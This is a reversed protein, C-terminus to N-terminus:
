QSVTSVHDQIIEFSAPCLSGIRFKKDRWMTNIWHDVPMSIGEQLSSDVLEKSMTRMVESPDKNTVPFLLAGAGYWYEMGERITIERASGCKLPINKYNHVHLNDYDKFEEHSISWKTLAVTDSVLSVVPTRHILGYRWVSIHSLFDGIAGIGTLESHYHSQEDEM